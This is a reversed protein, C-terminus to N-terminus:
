AHIEKILLETYLQRHGIKRKYGKRRKFKYIRIKRHKGHGLVKAKIKIGKTKEGVIVDGDKKIMLVKTLEIEEGKLAELKEVKIKDGEEVKYQKGGTEVVAYM